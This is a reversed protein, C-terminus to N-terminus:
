CYEIACRSFVYKDRLHAFCQELENLSKMASTKKIVLVSILIM